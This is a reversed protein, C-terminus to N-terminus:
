SRLWETYLAAGRDDLDSMVREISQKVHELDALQNKRASAMVHVLTSLADDLTSTADVEFSAVEDFPIGHRTAMVAAAGM